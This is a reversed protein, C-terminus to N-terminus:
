KGFKEKLYFKIAWYWREIPNRSTHAIIGLDEVTGDARIIKASFTARKVQKAVGAGVTVTGM